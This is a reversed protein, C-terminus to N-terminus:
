FPSVCNTAGRMKCLRYAFDKAWTETLTTLDKWTNFSDEINRDAIRRDVGAALLEGTAADTVRGEVSAEGSGTPKVDAM